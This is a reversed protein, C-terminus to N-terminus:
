RSIAGMVERHNAEIKTDLAKIAQTQTVLDELVKIRADQDKIRADQSAITTDKRASDAELEAIRQNQATINASQLEITAMGLRSRFYALVGAGGSVAGFIVAIVATVEYTSTSLGAIM